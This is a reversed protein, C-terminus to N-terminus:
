VFITLVGTYAYLRNHFIEGNAFFGALPIDGLTQQIMRLEQSNDGFQHRGRALCSYYLAGRPQSGMRRRLDDLMRQMDERATNGDRRCFMLTADPALYEGVALLKHAVDIGLLNRVLYDGTDSGAVPLAAFIYGGARRLDQAIVDGVDEKFVELAPRQDLEVVINRDSATVRHPPGIPTCGQTHGTVVPVASSFLVGSLGGEAVAEAIQLHRGASSTLGGVCFAGPVGNGFQEILPATQLHAPDAHIVGFHFSDTALWAAEDQAFAQLTTTQLPIARFGDAPFAALMIALAPADYYEKGTACIGLGLTGTWCAIGTERKLRAVLAPLEAALADTAYLFGVNAGADIEGIQALCRMRLEDATGGSAHGLQFPKLM